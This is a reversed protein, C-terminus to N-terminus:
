HTNKRNIVNILRRLIRGIGWRIPYKKKHIYVERKYAKGSLNGM